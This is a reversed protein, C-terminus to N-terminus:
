WINKSYSLMIGHKSVNVDIAKTFLFSSLTGIAAGAIVDHWYHAHARIRSYGVAAAVITAPIGYAKGYRFWLFSSASFAAATHGSPFSWKKGNPRKENIIPKLTYTLGTTLAFSEAFQGLGHYDKKGVATLGAALPLAIQTIDGYREFM